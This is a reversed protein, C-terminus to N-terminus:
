VHHESHAMRSYLLVFLLTISIWRQTEDTTTIIIVVVIIIIIIIIYYYYMFLISICYSSSSSSSSIIIIIIIIILSARTYHKELIVEWFVNCHIICTMSYHYDVIRKYHM